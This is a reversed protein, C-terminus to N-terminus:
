FGGIMWLSILGSFLVYGLSYYGLCGVYQSGLVGLTTSSLFDCLLLKGCTFTESKPSLANWTMPCCMLILPVSIYIAGTHRVTRNELVFALARVFSTRSAPYAPMVMVGDLDLSMYENPLVRLM